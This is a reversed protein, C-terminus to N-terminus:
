DKEFYLHYFLGWGLDMVFPSEVRGPFFLLNKQPTM